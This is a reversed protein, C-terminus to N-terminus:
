SLDGSWVVDSQVLAQVCPGESLEYQIQDVRLPLDGTAAITEPPHEGRMLSISAHEAGPMAKAAFQTVRPILIGDPQDESLAAVLDHMQDVLMSMAPDAAQRPQDM